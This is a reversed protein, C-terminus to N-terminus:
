VSNALPSGIRARAAGSIAQGTRTMVPSCSTPELGRMVRSSARAKGLAQARTTGACRCISGTSSGAVTAAASRDKKWARLDSDDAAYLRDAVLGGLTSISVFFM